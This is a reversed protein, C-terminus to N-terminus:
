RWDTLVAAGVEAPSRGTTDYSADWASTGADDGQEAWAQRAETALHEPSAGRLTDGALEPAEGRGRARVRAAYSTGDATLGVVRLATPSIARALLDREEASSLRGSLVLRRAGAAHFCRWAIAANALPLRDDSVGRVFGLQALDVYAAVTGQNRLALWIGFAVSSKGVARSGAVWLASTEVESIQVMTDDTEDPEDPESPGLIPPAGALSARVAAATAPVTGVGTDVVPHALGAAELDRAEELADAVWEEDVGREELRRTLEADDVALRCMTLEHPALRDAYWGMLEPDVVGSVVLRECGAGAYTSAIGALVRGKLRDRGPDSDLASSCMGLQDIDVYACRVGDVALDEFLAWSTVSKGAGSPGYVWWVQVRHISDRSGLRDCRSQDV